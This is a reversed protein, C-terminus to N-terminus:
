KFLSVNILQLQTQANLSFKRPSEQSKYIKQSARNRFEKFDKIQIAFHSIVDQFIVLNKSRVM